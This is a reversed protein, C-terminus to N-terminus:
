FSKGPFTTLHSCGDPFISSSELAKDIRLSEKHLQVQHQLARPLGLRGLAPVSSPLPRERSNIMGEAGCAVDNEELDNAVVDDDACSLVLSFFVEPM